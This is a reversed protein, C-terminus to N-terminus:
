APRERGRRRIKSLADLATDDAEPMTHLYKETTTISAHGLRDRVVLLDAGGALLWSAHAHRLDHTHVSMDGLGAALLAPKWIHVRFWARPIHGDTSLMRAQRPEDKGSARRQARYIAYADTCHRCRCRGASYGSLTGHRYQRGAANPGTLGLTEPDPLIRLEPRTVDSRDRIAFILDDAGLNNAEVHARIKGVIQASLKLQRHEKDKPYDKILFHGDEPHFRRTLEVVVRSVTVVRTGFDLDKVRLETLEGWRLGSEIDTEALLRFTGVPLADHLLEFQEPTIIQRVKKPVPPTKVGKCPHLFTVQDNLATTFVASLVVMCQRITPPRVGERTLRSVWERVHSPLIEVMRMPGFEPLIRRNLYYSYSERTRLEMIHNPLWDEVYRQFTQRGRRLDGARGEAVKVEQSQWAKDALKRSSFTGASCARGRIDSYYATYRPRGDSGTRKRSYGMTAGKIM